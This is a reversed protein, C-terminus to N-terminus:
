RGVFKVHGLADTETVTFPSKGLKTTAYCTFVLGAQQLVPSPCAVTAKLHREKHVAQAIALEVTGSDLIRLPTNNSYRVGGRANIEIVEVPYSGVALQASCFFKYGSKRPPHAPCVVHTSIGRQQQITQMIAREVTGTQLTPPAPPSSSGCATAVLASLAIAGAARSRTWLRTARSSHM